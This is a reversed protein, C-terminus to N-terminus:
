QLKMLLNETSELRRSYDENLEDLIKKLDRVLLKDGVYKGDQQEDIYEYVSDSLRELRQEEYTKIPTVIPNM